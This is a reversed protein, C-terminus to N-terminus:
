AVTQPQKDLETHAANSFEAANKAKVWQNFRVCLMHKRIANTRASNSKEYAVPKHGNASDYVLGNETFVLTPSNYAVHCGPFMILPTTARKTQIKWGDWMDAMWETAFEPYFDIIIDVEVENLGLLVTNNHDKGAAAIAESTDKVWAEDRTEAVPEPKAEAVPEPQTEVVPEPSTLPEPPCCGDLLEEDKTDEAKSKGALKGELRYARQSLELSEELLRNAKDKDTCEAARNKLEQARNDLWEVRKSRKVTRGGLLGYKRDAASIGFGISGGIVAGAAAGGLAAKRKRTLTPRYAAIEKINM